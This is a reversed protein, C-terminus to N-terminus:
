SGSQSWHWPESPLNFIGFRTANAALWRHCATSRTSCRDFDIALGVEHMSTGPRATPPSCQSSPMEYIAYASTGCHAHRLAIQESPDRYSSGTLTLGDAAAAALLARVDPAWSSNTPGIGAVDILGVPGALVPAAAPLKVPDDRYRHAADLVQTVYTSSHNYALLGARWDEETAMPPASACLYAAATLTADYLNHPDIVADDNGDLGYARWTAPIFQMPGVAHDVATSGDWVGDDTDGGLDPLPIGVIPPSVDGNPSATAGGHTGHGSEIEGVGALIWAPIECPPSFARAATAARQYADAAVPPIGETRLGPTVLPDGSGVLGALTLLPLFIITTLLTLFGAAVGAGVKTPNNM